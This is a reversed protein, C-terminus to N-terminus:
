RLSEFLISCLSQRSCTVLSSMQYKRSVPVVTLGKKVKGVHPFLGEELFAQYWLLVNMNLNVSSGHFLQSVSLM